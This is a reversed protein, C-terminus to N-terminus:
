CVSVVHLVFWGATTHLNAAAQVQKALMASSSLDIILCEFQLTSICLQPDTLAHTSHLQPLMLPPATTTHPVTGVRRDAVALVMAPSLSLLSVLAIFLVACSHEYIYAM